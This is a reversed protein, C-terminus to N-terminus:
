LNLLCRRPQSQIPKDIREFRVIIIGPMKSNVKRQKNCVAYAGSWTTIIIVHYFFFFSPKVPPNTPAIKAAFVSDEFCELIFLQKLSFHGMRDQPEIRSAFVAVLSNYM